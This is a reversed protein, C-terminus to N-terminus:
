ENSKYIFKPQEAEGSISRLRDLAEDRENLLAQLFSAPDLTATHTYGDQKLSEHQNKADSLSLVKTEAGKKVYVFVSVTIDFM